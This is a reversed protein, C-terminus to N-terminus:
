WKKQRPLFPIVTVPRYPWQGRTWLVFHTFPYNWNGSIVAIATREPRAFTASIKLLVRKATGNWHKWEAATIAKETKSSLSNDHSVAMLATLIRRTQLRYYGAPCNTGRLLLTPKNAIKDLKTATVTKGPGLVKIIHPACVPLFLTFM